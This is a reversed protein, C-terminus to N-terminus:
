VGGDLKVSQREFIGFVGKRRYHIVLTRNLNVYATLTDGPPVILGNWDEAADQEYYLTEEDFTLTVDGGAETWTELPVEHIEGSDADFTDIGSRIVKTLRVPLASDNRITWEPVRQPEVGPPYTKLERTLVVGRPLVAWLGLGVLLSIAGGAIVEM